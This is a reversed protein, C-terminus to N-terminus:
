ATSSSPRPKSAASRTPTRLDLRPGSGQRQRRQNQRAALLATRRLHPRPRALKGTRRRRRRHARRRHRVAKASVSKCPKRRASTSPNPAKSWTPSRRRRAASARASFLSRLVLAVAAAVLGLRSNGIDHLNRGQPSQRQQAAGYGHPAASAVPLVLLRPILTTGLSAAAERRFGRSRRADRVADRRRWPPARDPSRPRPGSRHGQRVRAPKASSRNSFANATPKPSAPATTPSPSNSPAPMATSRRSRRAAPRPAQRKRDPQPPPPAALARRRADDAAEGAVAIGDFRSAEEAALALLDVDEVTISADADRRPPKVAPNRRDAPRTRRHRTRTRSQAAPDAKEKLLEIGMRLRTLPTRLEHSANALLM